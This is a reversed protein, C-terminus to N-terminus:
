QQGNWEKYFQKLFLEMFEHREEAIARGTETCMLDKLLLLKEYFHHITSSKGNRYEELTMKERVSFGPEYIPNGKKGGYAFTRAIGIAGVADLRDADRVVKAELTHLAAEKGGRYSVAAIIDLIKEKEGNHLEISNLVRHLKDQGEQESENLKDDAVDHLLAAAEIRELHHSGENKGIYLALKRVRDIHHWDHGSSDEAHIEKVLEELINLNNNIM